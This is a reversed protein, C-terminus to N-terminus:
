YIRSRFKVDRNKLIYDTIANLDACKKNKRIKDISNLINQKIALHRKISSNDLTDSSLRLKEPALSIDNQQDLKHNM